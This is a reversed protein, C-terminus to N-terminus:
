KIQLIEKIRPILINNAFDNNKTENEAEYQNKCKSGKKNKPKNIIQVFPCDTPIKNLFNFKQSAIILFDVKCFYLIIPIIVDHQKDGMTYIAVQKENINLVCTFDNNYFRTIDIPLKDPKIHTTLKDYLMGLVTTKGCNNSGRLIIIKTIKM